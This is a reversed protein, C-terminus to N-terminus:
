GEVVIVNTNSALSGIANVQGTPVFGQLELSAGGPLLKIGKAATAATGDLTVYVIGTTDNNQILLYRRALNAALLQGSASTVNASAQTFPGNVNGIDVTGEPMKDYQVDVGLRAVIQVTQATASTIRFRDFAGGRWKEAYGDYVPGTQSVEKGELYFIVEVPDTAELVRFFDGPEYFEKTEGPTFTLTQQM